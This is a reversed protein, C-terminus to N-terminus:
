SDEAKKSEIIQCFNELMLVSEKGLCREQSWQLLTGVAKLAEDCSVGRSSDNPEEKIRIEANDSLTESIEVRCHEDPMLVFDHFDEEVNTLCQAFENSGRPHLLRIGFRKKFRDLWGDSACFGKKHTIEKFIQKAKTKLIEGSIQENSELQQQYWAYLAWELEPYHGTRLTKRQSGPTIPISKMHLKLRNKNKLIDHITARGIGYLKSLSRATEGREYREVIEYKDTLLLTTHKRKKRQEFTM